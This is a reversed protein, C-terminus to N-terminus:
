EEAGVRARQPSLPGQVEPAVKVKRRAQALKLFNARFSISASHKSAIKARLASVQQRPELAGAAPANM